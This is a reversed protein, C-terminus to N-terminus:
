QSIEHFSLIKYSDIPQAKKIWCSSYRIGNGDMHDDFIVSAGGLNPDPLAVGSNSTRAVFVAGDIERNGFNNTNIIKGEGIVLIIGRWGNDPDFTYTGTVLLLGYGTNSWHSLDLDGDRVVTKMNSPSMGLSNLFATQVSWDGTPVVAGPDHNQLIAQAIANLQSPTQLAGPFSSGINEVDPWPGSGTYYQRMSWPQIGAGGNGGTKAATVDSNTFVGVAAVASGGVPNGNCDQNNGKVFYSPNSDPPTFAIGNGSSGALTLAALFPPLAIPSATVLYQLLKQSGNPLVALSTVELVQTGSNAVNLQTGDYFVPTVPDKFGDYTPGVDLNLSKESVANIRVWKYLPGPVNLANLPNRNWISATTQVDLPGATFETAYENDPYTTLINGAVETPGPNLVYRVYGINWQTGPPPLFGAAATNKFSNPDKALLRGRGEELGALAAYYVGTASRYNGALASETGSSVVLAIAVVSILLLVFIAILLAIGAESQRKRIKIRARVNTGDPENVPISVAAASALV